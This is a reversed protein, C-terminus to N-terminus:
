PFLKRYSPRDQDLARKLHELTEKHEADDATRWSRLLSIAKATKADQGLMVVGSPQHPSFYASRDANGAQASAVLWLCGGVTVARTYSTKPASPLLLRGAKLPQALAETTARSNDAGVTPNKM